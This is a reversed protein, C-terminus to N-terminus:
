VFDFLSQKPHSVTLRRGEAEFKSQLADLAEKTADEFSIDVKKLKPLKQVQSFLLNSSKLTLEQLSSPLHAESLPSVLTCNEITLQILIPSQEFGELITYLVKSLKLSKMRPLMGLAVKSGLNCQINFEELNPFSSLNLAYAPNHM